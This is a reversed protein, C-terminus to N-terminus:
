HFEACEIPECTVALNIILNAIKIHIPSFVLIDSKYLGKGYVQM